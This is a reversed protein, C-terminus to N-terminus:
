ENMYSCTNKLCTTSQNTSRNGRQFITWESPSMRVQRRVFHKFKQKSASLDKLIQLKRQIIFSNFMENYGSYKKMIQM